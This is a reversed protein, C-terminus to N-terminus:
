CTWIWHLRSTRENGHRGRSSSRTSAERLRVVRARTKLWWIRSGMKTEQGWLTLIPQFTLISAKATLNIPLRVNEALAPWPPIETTQRAWQRTKQPVPTGISYRAVTQWFARSRNQRWYNRIAIIKWILIKVRIRSVLTLKRNPTTNTSLPNQTAPTEM